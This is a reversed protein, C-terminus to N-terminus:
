QQLREVLPKPLDGNKQAFAPYNSAFWARLESDDPYDKAIRMFPSNFQRLYDHDRMLLMIRYKEGYVEHVYSEAYHRYGLKCFSAYRNPSCDSFALRYQRQLSGQYCQLALKVAGLGNRYKPLVMFRTVLFLAERGLLAEAKDTYFRERLCTLDPLEAFGTTRITGVPEDDDYLAYSVSIDDYEDRLWRRKHDAYPPNFGQEEVYILYRLAFVKELEPLTTVEKCRLAM